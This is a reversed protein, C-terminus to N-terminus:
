SYTTMFLSKLKIQAFKILENYIKNQDETLRTNNNSESRDSEMIYNISIINYIQNM